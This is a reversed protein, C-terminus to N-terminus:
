IIYVDFAQFLCLAHFRYNQCGPQASPELRIREENWLWHERKAILRKKFINDLPQFVSAIDVVNDDTNAVEMSCYFVIKLIAVSKSDLDLVCSRLPGECCCALKLSGLLQQLIVRKHTDISIRDILKIQALHYPLM